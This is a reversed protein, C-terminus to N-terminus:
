LEKILKLKHVCITVCECVIWCLTEDVPESLGRNMVLVCTLSTKHNGGLSTVIDRIGRRTKELMCVYATKKFVFVNMLFLFWMITKICLHFNKKKFPSVSLPHFFTQICFYFKADSIFEVNGRM